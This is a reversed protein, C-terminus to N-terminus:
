VLSFFLLLFAWERLISSPLGVLQQGKQLNEKRRTKKTVKDEEIHLVVKKSWREQDLGLWQVPTFKKNPLEKRSTSAGLKEQCNRRSQGKHTEKTKKLKRKTTREAKENGLERARVKGWLNCTGKNTKTLSHTFDDVKESKQCLTFHKNPVEKLKKKM